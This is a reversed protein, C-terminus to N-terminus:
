SDEPNWPSITGNGGYMRIRPEKVPRKVNQAQPTRGSGFVVVAQGILADSLEQTAKDSMLSTEDFYSGLFTKLQPESTIEVYLPKKGVPARGTKRDIEDTLGVSLHAAGNNDLIPRTDVRKGNEFIGVPFITAVWGRWVGQGDKIMTIDKAMEWLKGGVDTTQAPAIKSHGKEARLSVTEYIVNEIQKLGSWKQKEGFVKGTLGVAKASPFAEKNAGHITRVGQKTGLYVSLGPENEPSNDRPQRQYTQLFYGAVEVTGPLEKRGKERVLKRLASVRNLARHPGEQLAAVDNELQDKNGGYVKTLLPDYLPQEISSAAESEGEPEEDMEAM